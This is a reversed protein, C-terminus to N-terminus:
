WRHDNSPFNDGSARANTVSSFELSQLLWAPLPMCYQINTGHKSAARHMGAAWDRAADVTSFFEPVLLAYYSLFDVEFMAMLGARESMLRDYLAFSANPAVQAFQGKEFEVSRLFPLRFYDRSKEPCFFFSYVTFNLGGISHSLSDLDTFPTFNCMNQAWPDLQVSQLPIGQARAQNVAGALQQATPKNRGFYYAGNDTWYSIKREVTGLPSRSTNHRTRLARGWKEMAPRVGKGASGAIIFSAEHGAPLSAVRGQVGAVLDMPRQPCAGGSVHGRAVRRGATSWKMYCNNALDPDTGNRGIWSFYRCVSDQACMACCAAASPVGRRMSGSFDHGTYDIDTEFSSSDCCANSGNAAASGGTAPRLALVSSMFEAYPSIVLASRNRQGTQFLVIPGGEQGGIYGSLGIGQSARTYAFVGAWTVYGLEGRLRSGHSYDFAPFESLPLSSSNYSSGAMTPLHLGSSNACGDPFSQRLVFHGGADSHYEFSANFRPGEGDDYAVWMADETANWVVHTAATSFNHWAGDCFIRPTRARTSSLLWPNEVDGMSVSYNLSGREGVQVRLTVGDPSSREWQQEGLAYPGFLASVLATWLISRM